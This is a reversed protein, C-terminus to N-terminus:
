FFIDSFLRKVIRWKSNTTLISIICEKSSTTSTYYVPVHLNNAAVGDPYFGCKTYVVANKYFAKPVQSADCGGRPTPFMEIHNLMAQSSSADILRGQACLTLFLAASLANINHDNLGSFPRGASWGLHQKSESLDMYSIKQFGVNEWLGAHAALLTS